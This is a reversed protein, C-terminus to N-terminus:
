LGPIYDGCRNTDGVTWIEGIDGCMSQVISTRSQRIRSKLYAGSARRFRESALHITMGWREFKCLAMYFLERLGITTGRSVRPEIIGRNVAGQKRRTASHVNSNTQETRRDFSRLRLRRFSGLAASHSQAAQTATSYLCWGHRQAPDVVCQDHYCHTVEKPKVRGSCSCQSTAAFCQAGSQSPLFKGGVSLYFSEFSPSFKEVDPNGLAALVTLPPLSVEGHGFGSM